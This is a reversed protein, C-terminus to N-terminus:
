FSNTSEMRVYKLRIRIHECFFEVQPRSPNFFFLIPTYVQFVIKSANLHIIDDISTFM